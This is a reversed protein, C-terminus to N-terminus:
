VATIGCGQRNHVFGCISAFYPTVHVSTVLDHLKDGAFRPYVTPPHAALRIRRYVRSIRLPTIAHEVRCSPTTTQPHHSGPILPLPRPRRYSYPRSTAKAHYGPSCRASPEFLRDGAPSSLCKSTDALSDSSKMLIPPALPRCPRRIYHVAVACLELLVDLVLVPSQYLVPIM